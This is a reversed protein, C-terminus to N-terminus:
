CAIERLRAIRKRAYYDAPEGTLRLGRALQEAYRDGVVSFSSPSEM